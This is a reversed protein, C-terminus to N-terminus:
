RLFFATDHARLVVGGPPYIIDCHRLVEQVASFCFANARDTSLTRAHLTPM